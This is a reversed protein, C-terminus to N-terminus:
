VACWAACVNQSEQKSVGGRETSVGGGWVCVFVFVCWHIFAQESTDCAISANVLPTDDTSRQRTLTSPPYWSISMPSSRTADASANSAQIRTRAPAALLPLLPLM